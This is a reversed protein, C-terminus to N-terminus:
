DTAEMLCNFATRYHLASCTHTHTNTHTHTHLHTHSCWSRILEDISQGIEASKYTTNFADFELRLVIFEVLGM